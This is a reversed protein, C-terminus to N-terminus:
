GEVTKKPVARYKQLLLDPRYSLKSQRLGEDGLDEERNIWIADELYKGLEQVLVSWVHPYEAMAKEFHVDYVGDSLKSAITMGVPQGDAYVVLGKLGWNEWNECSKLIARYEYELYNKRAEPQGDLWNRAVQCADPLLARTLPEVHADPHKRFFQKIHNRKSSFKKGAMVSIVDQRHLYEAFDPLLTIEYKEPFAEELKQCDAETLMELRFPIGREWADQELLPILERYDANGVPAAYAGKLYGEPFFRLLTDKYNYIYTNYKETLLAINVFGADNQRLNVKFGAERIWVLDEDVPTRFEIM